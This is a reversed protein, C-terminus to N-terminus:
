NWSQAAKRPEEPAFAPLALENGIEVGLPDQPPFSSSCPRPCGCAHWQPPAVAQATVTCCPDLFRSLTKSQPSLHVACAQMPPVAKTPPLCRSTRGCCEIRGAFAAASELPTSLGAAGARRGAQLLPTAGLSAARLGLREASARANPKRGRAVAIKVTHVGCRSWPGQPPPEGGQPCPAKCIVVLVARRVHCTMYLWGGGTVHWSKM